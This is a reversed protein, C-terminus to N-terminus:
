TLVDASSGEAGEKKGNSHASPALCAAVHQVIVSLAEAESTTNERGRIRNEWDRRKLESELWGMFRAFSFEQTHALVRIAQKLRKRDEDKAPANM